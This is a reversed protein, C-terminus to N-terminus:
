QKKLLKSSCSLNTFLKSSPVIHGSISKNGESRSCAVSGLISGQYYSPFGNTQCNDAETLTQGFIHMEVTFVGDGLTVTGSINGNYSCHGREDNLCGNADGYTGCRDFAAGLFKFTPINYVKTASCLSTDRARM